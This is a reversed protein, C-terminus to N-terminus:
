KEEDSLDGYFFYQGKGLEKAKYLAKDAHNMFEELGLADKPYISIGITAGIHIIEGEIDMPEKINDIVKQAPTFPDFKDDVSNLIIAFEDGGLRAVLDVHRCANELRRSVMQLVKDGANHGYTDNVPKFNDLDIMLLAVSLNLRQVSEMSHQLNQNFHRRNALNTLSDTLVLKQIEEEDKKRQTIDHIVATYTMEGNFESQGMFVDVPFTSGDARIVTQEQSQEPVKPPSPHKLNKIIAQHRAALDHPMLQVISKGLLESKRYGLMTETSTNLSEIIGSSNTTIIADHVTNLIMNVRHQNDLANNRDIEASKQLEILHNALTLAQETKQESKNQLETIEALQQLTTQNMKNLSKATRHRKNENKRFIRISRIMQKIEFVQNMTFYIEKKYGRRQRALCVRAITIRQLPSIVKNFMIYAFFILTFLSVFIIIKILENISKQISYINEGVTYVKDRLEVEIHQQLTQLAQKGHEDIEKITLWKREISSEIVPTANELIQQYFDTTHQLNQLAIQEDETLSLHTYQALIQRIQEINKKTALAYDTNSRLQFNKINHVLGGYGFQAVLDTLLTFKDSAIENEQDPLQGTLQKRNYQRLIALGNLAPNDDVRVFQDMKHAPINQKFLSILEENRNQYRKLVSSIHKLADQESQSLQFSLYLKIITEASQIDSKVSELQEINNTLMANKLKHIMGGFGMFTRISNELRLKDSQEIQVEDWLTQIKLVDSKIKLMSTIQVSAMILILALLITSIFKLTMFRAMRKM